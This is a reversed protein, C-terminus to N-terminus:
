GGELINKALSEWQLKSMIGMGGMALIKNRLNDGQSTAEENPRINKDFITVRLRRNERTVMFTSTSVRSYFHATENHPSEPNSSPRVRFAICDMEAENIEKLEEVRVWDYGDGEKLGPGPMSIRFYDSEQVLRYAEDADGDMVQFKVGPLGLESWNNVDLLRRRAERYASRAEDANDLEISAEAIIERGTFQQPVLGTMDKEEM